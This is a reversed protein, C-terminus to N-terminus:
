ARIWYECYMYIRSIVPYIFIYNIFILTESFAHVYRPVNNLALFRYNYTSTFNSICKMTNTGFSNKVNENFNALLRTEYNRTVIENPFDHLSNPNMM